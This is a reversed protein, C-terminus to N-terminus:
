KQQSLSMERSTSGWTSGKRNLLVCLLWVAVNLFYDHMTNTVCVLYSCLWADVVLSLYFARKLLIRWLM